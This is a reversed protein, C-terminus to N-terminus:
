MEDLKQRTQNLRGALNKAETQKRYIEAQIKKAMTYGGFNFIVITWAILLGLSTVIILIITM